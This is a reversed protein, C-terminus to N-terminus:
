YALWLTVSVGLPCERPRLPLAQGVVPSVISSSAVIPMDQCDEDPCTSTSPTSDEGESRCCLLEFPEAQIPGKRHFCRMVDPAAFAVAGQSLAMLLVLSRRTMVTKRLV